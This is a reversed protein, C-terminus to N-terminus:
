VKAAGDQTKMAVPRMHKALFWRLRQGSLPRELDCRDAFGSAMVSKVTTAWGKARAFEKPHRSARGKSKQPHSAAVGSVRWSSNLTTANPSERARDKGPCLSTMRGARASQIHGPKGPCVEVPNSQRAEQSQGPLGVDCAWRISEDFPEFRRRNM